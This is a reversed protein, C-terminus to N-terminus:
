AREWSGIIRRRRIGYPVADVRWVSIPLPFAIPMVNHMDRIREAEVEAEHPRSAFFWVVGAGTVVEWRTDGSVPVATDGQRDIASMNSESGIVKAFRFM